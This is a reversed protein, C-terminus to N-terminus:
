KKYIESRHNVAHIVLVTEIADFVIRYDGVRFRYQGLQFNILRKAFSLPKDTSIFYDLKHLLLRAIEPSLKNLQRKAEPTFEYRYM